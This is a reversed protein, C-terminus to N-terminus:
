ARESLSRSLSVCDCSHMKMRLEPNSRSLPPSPPPSGVTWRPATSRKLNVTSWPCISQNSSRNAAEPHQLLVVRGVAAVPEVEAVLLLALLENLEHPLVAADLELNSPSLSLSLAPSLARVRKLISGFGFAM